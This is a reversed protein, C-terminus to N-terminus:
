FGFKSVIGLFCLLILFNDYQLFIILFALDVSFLFKTGTCDPWKNPFKPPITTWYGALTCVYSYAVPGNFTYPNQCSAQFMHGFGSVFSRSVAGNIPAERHPCTKALHSFIFFYCYRHLILWVPDKFQVM